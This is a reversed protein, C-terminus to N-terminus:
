ADTQKASAHDDFRRKVPFTYIRATTQDNMPAKAINKVTPQM